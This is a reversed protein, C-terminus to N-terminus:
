VEAYAALADALSKKNIPKSLHNDMGANRCRDVEQPTTNATLAIVPINRRPPELKRILRTAELGDMEPMQVDMFVADYTFNQIATLAEAGDAVVDVRHGLRELLGRAVKQNIINDEAVLLRLRKQLNSASIAAGEGEETLTSDLNDAAPDSIPLADRIWILPVEIWFSSGKGIKSEFEIQGGMLETLKKCIALGLGSGGFRRATSADVQSFSDFLREKADDDIGIGTDTVNFRIRKENGKECALNLALDVAGQDTFKLANGVLNILIQRIRGADGCFVGRVDDDISCTLKIGKEIARANLIETVGQALVCLDFDNKELEMREADLKSFDLIDNIIDLLLDGSTRITETISRQDEKLDTDLLLGTMGIVGNMPTRIEHSMTALFESKYRNATEAEELAVRLDGELTKLDLNAQGLSDKERLLRYYALKNKNILWLIVSFTFIFFVALSFILYTLGIQNEANILSPVIEIVQLGRIDGVKWDDKPTDPHSNHCAVCGETMPMPTAYKLVKRDNINVIKSYKRESTTRFHEFAQKEFGGMERKQRWPFPNASVVSVQIDSSKGNLFQVLEITMTAPIPVAHEIDAYNHTIEIGSGSLQELIVNNYFQRFSSVASSYAKASMDLATREIKQTHWYAIYLVVAGFLVAGAVLLTIVHSTLGKPADIDAQSNHESM